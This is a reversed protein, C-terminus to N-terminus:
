IYAEWSEPINAKKAIGIVPLNHPKRPTSKLTMGAEKPLRNGKTQNCKFCAVVINEWNTKGGKSKPIIHDFTADSVSVRHGCYQCNGNDRAYVNAKSFKTKKRWRKRVHSAIFRVIAPMPISGEVLGIFKDVYNEVVEVRGAVWM